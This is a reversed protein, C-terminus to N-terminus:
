STKSTNIKKEYKGLLSKDAAEKLTGCDSITWNRHSALFGNFFDRMIQRNQVRNERLLYNELYLKNCFLRVLVTCQKPSRVGVKDMLLRVYDELIRAATVGGQFGKRLLSSKFVYGDADILVRAYRPPEYPTTM